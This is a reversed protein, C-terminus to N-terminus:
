ADHETGEHTGADLVPSIEEHDPDREHDLHDVEYMAPSADPKLPVGPSPPADPASPGQIHTDGVEGSPTEEQVGAYM